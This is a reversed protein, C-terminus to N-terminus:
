ALGRMSARSALVLLIAPIEMFVEHATVAALGDERVPALNALDRRPPKPKASLDMDLIHM